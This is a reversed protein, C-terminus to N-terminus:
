IDAHSINNLALYEKLINLPVQRYLANQIFLERFKAGGGAVGFNSRCIRFFIHNLRSYSIQLSNAIASHSWNDLLLLGIMFDREKLNKCLNSPFHGTLNTVSSALQEPATIHKVIVGLALASSDVSDSLPYRTVELLKFRDKLIVGQLSTLKNQSKFALSDQYLMSAKSVEDLALSNVTLPTDVAKNLMHLYDPSAALYRAAKDRLAWAHIGEHNYKTKFNILLQELQSGTLM